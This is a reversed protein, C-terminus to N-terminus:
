EDEEVEDEYVFKVKKGKHEIIFRELFSAIEGSSILDRGIVADEPCECLPHVGFVEKGNVELIDHTYYDSDLWSRVKVTVVESM